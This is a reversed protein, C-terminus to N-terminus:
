QRRARLGTAALGELLGAIDADFGWRSIIERSKRGMQLYREASLCDRLSACLANVDGASFVRGNEGDSVLDSGSGVQDSVVIACAANMAENVTLGWTENFSPLVFVDGLAYYAPLEGQNKFGLFRISEADIQAARAELMPRLEGDGVFLLYPPPSMSRHGLLRFAELLDGARKRATLKGAYLIVPRAPELGLSNRLAACDAEQARARFYENDVAYPMEGILKTPVGWSQYFARNRTGIALFQDVHRFTWGVLVNRLIRQLGVSSASHETAECRMLVKLGSRRALWAALLFGYHSWGQILVADFRDRTLRHRLGRVRPQLFGFGSGELRLGNGPLFEHRYGDLLPVDWEVRRGFGQDVYGRISIDSFFLATLDIGPTAAIARLLPAQYQIPHTALWALRVERM